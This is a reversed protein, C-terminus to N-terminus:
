GNEDMEKEPKNDLFLVKEAVIETKIQINGNRDERRVTQLHGVIHVCSGKKAREACMEALVGWATICHWETKEKRNEGNGYAIRTVIRFNCVSKENRSERLEPETGLSGMLVVLNVGETM